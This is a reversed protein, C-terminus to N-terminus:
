HYKLVINILKIIFFTINENGDNLAFKTKM